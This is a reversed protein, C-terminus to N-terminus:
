LFLVAIAIGIVVGVACAIIGVGVVLDEFKRSETEHM